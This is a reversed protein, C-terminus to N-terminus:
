RPDVRDILADLFVGIAETDAPNLDDPLLARANRLRRGDLPRRTLLNMIPGFGGSPDGALISKSMVAAFEPPQGGITEIDTLVDRVQEAKLVAHDLDNDLCAQLAEEILLRSQLKWREYDGEADDSFPARALTERAQEFAGGDIHVNTLTSWAWIANPRQEIEVLLVEEARTLQGAQQLAYGLNTRLGRSRPSLEIGRELM